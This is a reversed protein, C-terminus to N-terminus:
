AGGGVGYRAAENTDHKLELLAAVIRRALLPANRADHHQTLVALVVPEMDRRTLTM